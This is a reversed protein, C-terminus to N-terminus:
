WTPAGCKTAIRRLIVEQKHSLADGKQLISQLCGQEWETVASSHEFLLEEACQRWYRPAQPQIVVPVPPEAHLVDTWTAGRDRVLRDALAAANAREGDFPSGFRACIGALKRLEAVTLTV